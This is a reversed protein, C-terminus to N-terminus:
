KYSVALFFAVDFVLLLELLTFYVLFFISVSVLERYSHISLVINYVNGNFGNIQFTKFFEMKICCTSLSVFRLKRKMQCMQWEHPPKTSKNVFINWWFRILSCEKWKCNNNRRRQMRGREAFHYKIVIKTKNNVQHRSWYFRM